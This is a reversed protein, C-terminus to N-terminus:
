ELGMYKKGDCNPIELGSDITHDKLMTVTNLCFYRHSVESSKGGVPDDWTVDVMYYGDDLKIYNWAHAGNMESNRATGTVYGCEIGLKNMILMYTKAYGECVAKHERLCGYSSYPMLNVGEPNKKFANYAEIDYECSRVLYDHVYLAKEYDTSCNNNANEVIRDVTSDFDSKMSPLQGVDCIAKIHVEVFADGGLRMKGDMEATNDIWFYEPHEMYVKEFMDFAVGIEEKGHLPKITFDTHFQEIEECMVKYIYEEATGDRKQSKAYMIAQIVLVMLMIGFVSWLVIQRIKRGEM